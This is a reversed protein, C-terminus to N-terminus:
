ISRNSGNGQMDPLSMYGSSSPEIKLSASRGPPGGLQELSPNTCNSVNLGFRSISPLFQPFTHLPQPYHSLFPPLQFPTHFSLAPPSSCYPAPAMLRGEEDEKVMDEEEGVMRQGDYGTGFGSNSGQPQGSNEGLHELRKYSSSSQLPSHNVPSQTDKEKGCLGEEPQYSFYLSCPEIEYSSPYKSYFYGMNSYFSQSSSDWHEVLSSYDLRTLPATDKVMSVEVASIDESFQCIDFSHPTFTPRLWEQFNGGHMSNLTDFYKSPDPIHQFKVKYVWKDRYVTCVLVLLAVCTLGIVMGVTLGMRDSSDGSPWENELEKGGFPNGVVSKWSHVPSWDSWEGSLDKNDPAIRVRAQYVAGKKLNEVNLQVWKQNNWVDIQKADQWQQTQPKIQVQFRYNYIKKSFPTGPSWSMNAQNVDIVGPPHMKIFKSPKYEKWTAVTATGCKVTLPIKDLVIFNNLQFDLHCSQLSDNPGTLPKLTCNRMRTKIGHLTCAVRPRTGSSDWVCTINNIYDNVCTLNHASAHLQSPLLLLLVTSSLLVAAMLAGAMEAKSDLANGTQDQLDHM